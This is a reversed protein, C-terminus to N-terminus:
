RRSRRKTLYRRKYHTRKSRRTRNRSRGRSRHHRKPRHRRRGGNIIDIEEKEIVDPVKVVIEHDSM